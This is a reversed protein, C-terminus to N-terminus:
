SSKKLLLRDNSFSISSSWGFLHGEQPFKYMESSHDRFVKAKLSFVEKNIGLGGYIVGKGNKM